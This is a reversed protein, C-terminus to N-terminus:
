GHSRRGAHTRTRRHTSKGHGRHSRKGKHAKVRASQGLLRNPSVPGAATTTGNALTLPFQPGTVGLSRHQVLGVAYVPWFTATPPAGPVCQGGSGGPNDFWLFADAGRYGPNTSFPGLGRGPPNCLVENGHHVRDAPVLPGQGSTGTNVVFHVGGLRKSIQQGYYLERSTWDFHTANVFFGQAQHVGAQNLLRAEESISLADAAGGDLYLALHPDQELRNVAWALEDHM